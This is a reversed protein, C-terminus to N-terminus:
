VINIKYRDGQYVWKKIKLTNKKFFILEMPYEEYAIMNGTFLFLKSKNGKKTDKIKNKDIANPIIELMLNLLTSLPPM